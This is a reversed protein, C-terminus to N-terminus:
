LLAREKLELYRELLSPSLEGAPVDLGMVGGRRLIEFSRRRAAMLEEAAAWEYARASSAIPADRAALVGPDAMAVILVLHRTSLRLASQVLESSAEPDLVDTLVVVLSRRNLRAAGFAFAAGFDAESFEAEVSYLVQSIRSVQVAGRQPSLYRRVGDSFTLLGVRDGQSQAVWALLLAANVAHDLKTLMGAPATMLRACDIAILAQQGKEAEVVTTVPKDLRATAKWSIRRMEDGSVYDRLGAFASTAGPPKARRFGTSPRLGRRLRLEYERIPLVSPYVAAPEAADMRVQRALLGYRRHCRCDVPGFSYAGRHPSRVHYTVVLSGDPTFAGAVVRPSAGLEFPAHDAVEALMGAAAPNQVTLTIAQEAGLALPRPVRRAVTFDRTRPLRRSDAIVALLLTTHYAIVVVLFWAFLISTAYLAVGLV